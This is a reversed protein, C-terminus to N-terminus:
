QTPDPDTECYVDLWHEMDASVARWRQVDDFRAWDRDRFAWAMQFCVRVPWREDDMYSQLHAEADAMGHLAALMDSAMGCIEDSRLWGFDDTLDEDADEQMGLMRVAAWDCIEKATNKGEFEKRRVDFVGFGTPSTGTPFPM